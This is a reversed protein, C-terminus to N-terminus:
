PKEKKENARKDKGEQIRIDLIAMIRDVKDSLVDISEAQNFVLRVLHKATIDGNRMALDLAMEFDEENDIVDENILDRRRTIERTAAEIKRDAFDIIKKEDEMLMKEKLNIARAERRWV